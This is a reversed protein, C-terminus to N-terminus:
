QWEARIRAKLDNPSDLFIVKPINYELVRKKEWEFMKTLSARCEEEFTDPLADDATIIWLEDLHYFCILGLFNPTNNGRPRFVEEL